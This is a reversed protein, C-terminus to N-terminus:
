IFAIRKRIFVGQSDLCKIVYELGAKLDNELNGLNAYNIIIYEVLRKFKKEDLNFYISITTNIINTYDINIMKLINEIENESKKNDLINVATDNIEDIDMKIKIKTM